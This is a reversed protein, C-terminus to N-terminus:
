QQVSHLWTFSVRVGQRNLANVVGPALQVGQDFRHGYASYQADLATSRSLM